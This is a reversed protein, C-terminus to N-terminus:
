QEKAARDCLKRWGSMSHSLIQRAPGPVAYCQLGVAGKYDLQKLTKLVRAVDFSGRDLTQILRDWNMQNTEGDDAGNVSVTFLYPMAEKLRLELNKGDDLKLFHCLNFGVGVNKRDVKKALRIADEVRAVYCGVHPDVRHPNREARGHRRNRAFVAVAREDSTDSSSKGGTVFLSILTDRGKLQELCKKLGPDYPPKNADVCAGMYVSFMKLGQADLAKLMEPIHKPDEFGIGDYGLEKLLKAQEDFSANNRACGSQFAYFPFCIEAAALTNWAATLGPLVGLLAVAALGCLLKRTKM